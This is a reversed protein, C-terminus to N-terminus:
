GSTSPLRCAATPRGGSLELVRDGNSAPQGLLGLLPSHQSTKPSLTLRVKYRAIDGTFDGRTSLRSEDSRITGHICQDDGLAFQARVTGLSMDSTSRLTANQWTFRGAAATIRDDAIRILPIAVLILGQTRFLARSRPDQLLSAPIRGHLNLLSTHKSDLILRATADVEGSLRLEADLKGSLLAAPRTTWTIAGLAQNNWGVRTASGRWISGRVDEIEIASDGPLLMAIILSAPLDVLLTGTFLVFVFAPWLCRKM